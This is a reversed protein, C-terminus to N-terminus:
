GEKAPSPPAAYIAVDEGRVGHRYVTFTNEAGDVFDEYDGPNAWAVPEGGQRLARIAADLAQVKEHQIV